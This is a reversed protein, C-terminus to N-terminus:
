GHKLTLGHMLSYKTQHTLFPTPCLVLHTSFLFHIKSTDASYIFIIFLMNFLFSSILFKFIFYYFQVTTQRKIKPPRSLM